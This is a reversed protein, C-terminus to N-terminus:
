SYEWASTITSVVSAILEWVAGKKSPISVFIKCATKVEINSVKNMLKWKDSLCVTSPFEDTQLKGVQLNEDIFHSSNVRHGLTWFKAERYPDRYKYNLEIM